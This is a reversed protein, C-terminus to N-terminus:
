GLLHVIAGITEEQLRQQGRWSFKGIDDPFTQRAPRHGRAEIDEQGHKKHEDDRSSDALISFGIFPIPDGLVASSASSEQRWWLSRSITM